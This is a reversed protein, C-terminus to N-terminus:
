RWARGGRRAARGGKVGVNGVDVGLVAAELVRRGDIGLVRAVALDAEARVGEHYDLLPRAEGGELGV